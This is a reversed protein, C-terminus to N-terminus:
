LIAEQYEQIKICMNEICIKNDIKSALVQIEAAEESIDADKGRLKQLSAKFETERGTKAQM